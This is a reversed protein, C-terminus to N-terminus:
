LLTKRFKILKLEVKLINEKRAILGKADGIVNQSKSSGNGIELFIQSKVTFGIEIEENNYLRFLLEEFDYNSDFFSIRIKDQRAIPTVIGEILLSEESQIYKLFENECALNIKEKTIKEQSEM